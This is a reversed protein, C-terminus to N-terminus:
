LNQLQAKAERGAEKDQTHHKDKAKSLEQELGYRVEDVAKEFSDETAEARYLDGKIGLNAEVRYFRGHQHTAVKEFEVECTTPNDGIFKTLTGFKQDVVGALSKAEELGNYKYSITPFTM